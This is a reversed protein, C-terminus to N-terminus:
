VREWEKLQVPIKSINGSSVSVTLIRIVKDANQPVMVSATEDNPQIHVLIEINHVGGGTMRKMRGKDGWDM